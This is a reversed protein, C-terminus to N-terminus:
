CRSEHRNRHADFLMQNYMKKWSFFFVLLLFTVLYDDYQIDRLFLL